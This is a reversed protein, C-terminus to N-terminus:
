SQPSCRAIAARPQSAAAQGALEPTLASACVLEGGEETLDLQRPSGVVSHRVRHHDREHEAVEPRGELPGLDESRQEGAFAM